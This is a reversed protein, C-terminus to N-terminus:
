KVAIFREDSNGHHFYIYTHKMFSVGYKENEFDKKKSNKQETWNRENRLMECCEVQSLLTLTTPAKLVAQSM